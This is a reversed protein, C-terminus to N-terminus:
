KLALVLLIRTGIVGADLASQLDRWHCLGTQAAQRLRFALNRERVFSDAIRLGRILRGVKKQHEAHIEFPSVVLPM